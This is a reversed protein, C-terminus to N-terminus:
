AYTAVQPQDENKTLKLTETAKRAVMSIPDGVPAVRLLHPDNVRRSVFGALKSHITPLHDKGKPFAMKDPAFKATLKLSLLLEINITTM